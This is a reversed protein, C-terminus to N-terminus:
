ENLMEGGKIYIMHDIFIKDNFEKEKGKNIDIELGGVYLMNLDEKKSLIKLQEILWVKQKEFANMTLNLIHSGDDKDEIKYEDVVGKLFMGLEKLDKDKVERLKEDRKLLNYLSVIAGCSSTAKDHGYRKFEGWRGTEDDYGIHTFNLVLINKGYNPIHHSSPDLSEYTHCHPIFFGGFLRRDYILFHKTEGYMIAYLVTSSQDDPCIISIVGTNNELEMEYKGLVNKLFGKFKDVDMANNLIERGEYM